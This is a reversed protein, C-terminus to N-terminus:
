LLGLCVCVVCKEESGKQFKEPSSFHCNCIPVDIHVEEEGTPHDHSLDGGAEVMEGCPVAACAAHSVRRPGRTLGGLIAIIFVFLLGRCLM